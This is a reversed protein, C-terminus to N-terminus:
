GESCLRNYGGQWYVLPSQTSKALVNVVRGILIAHSYRPLAEELDCEIVALADLLYPVRGAGMQWNPDIYRDIGKVGRRGAFTEAIELHTASLINVAFRRSTQILPWNTSERNLSVLLTPTDVSLSVVSTATFGSAQSGTGVTVVSVGAALNRMSKKFDSAVSSQAQRFEIEPWHSDAGGATDVDRRM